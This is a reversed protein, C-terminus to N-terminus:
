EFLTPSNDLIKGLFTRRHYRCIGWERIAKIHEKTGYGKHKDFGYMPFEEHAVECMWSDRNVKALISAVAITLCKSDGGIITEYPIDRFSYSNGDILLVDPKLELKLVSNRMALHTAKLINIQDITENDVSEVAFFSAKELIIDFLENRKKESLKKSDNIGLNDLINKRIIASSAYVPGALAGRGAEDIGAVIKDIKWYREEYVTTPLIENKKTM